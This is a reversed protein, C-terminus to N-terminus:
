LISHRSPIYPSFVNVQKEPGFEVRTYTYASFWIGIPNGEPDLIEAGRPDWMESGYLWDLLRGFQGSDKEIPTWFKSTFVYDDRIGVVAYPIAKRGDYYYNYGPLMQKQLFVQTIEPSPRLRGYTGGCGSFIAATIVIIGLFILRKKINDMRIMTQGGSVTM